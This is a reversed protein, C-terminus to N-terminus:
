RINKDLWSTIIRYFEDRDLDNHLEHFGGEFLHLEAQKLQKAFAKTAWHSTIQDGTGHCLLVPVELEQAHSMMWAAKELFPFVFNPSVKDHNLPDEIYKKVEWPERSIHEPNLGSPMTIWPLVYSFLKGMGMKWAPPSFAMKLFPSTSIVGNVQPKRSMAYGLVANGGMSHGYLFVPLGPIEAQAKEQTLGISDMVGEYGPSYGRRGESHGHGFHDTAFVSYGEGVLQPVVSSSYRGSHEGMGHVLVVVGRPDEALWAQGFLKKGHCAIEYGQYIM